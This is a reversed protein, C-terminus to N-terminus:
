LSADTSERSRPVPIATFCMHRLFPFSVPHHLDQFMTLSLLALYINAHRGSFMAINREAAGDGVVLPKWRHEFRTYNRNNIQGVTAQKKRADRMIHKLSLRWNVLPEESPSSSFDHSSFTNSPVYCPAFV